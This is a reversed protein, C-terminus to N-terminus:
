GNRNRHLQQKLSHTHLAKGAMLFRSLLRGGILLSLGNGDMSLIQSKMRTIEITNFFSLHLFQDMHTVCIHIRDLLSGM